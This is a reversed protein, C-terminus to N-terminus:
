PVIDMGSTQLCVQRLQDTRQRGFAAQRGFRFQRPPHPDRTGRQALGHTRKFSLPHDTAALAHSREHNGLHRHEIGPQFDQLADLGQGLAGVQGDIHALQLDLLHFCVFLLGCAKFTGTPVYRVRTARTM